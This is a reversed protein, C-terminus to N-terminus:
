QLVVAAAEGCHALPAWGIGSQNVYENWAKLEHDRYSAGPGDDYNLLEDFVVICGPQLHPGVHQLATVTSSYLDCDVHVLGIPTIAAFDFEPLTDAFWGAVIHANTTGWPQLSAMSGARYEPRWDEPLGQFSDFGVIPMHAAIMRTSVGAGVGFEVATGRLLYTDLIHRLLSFPAVDAVAAGWGAETTPL